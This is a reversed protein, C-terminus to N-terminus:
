VDPDHQAAVIGLPAIIAFAHREISRCANVNRIEKQSGKLLLPSILRERVTGM